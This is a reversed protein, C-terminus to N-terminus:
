TEAYRFQEWVLRKIDKLQCCRQFVERPEGTDWPDLGAEETGFEPGRRDGEDM